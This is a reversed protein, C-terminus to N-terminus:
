DREVPQTRVNVMGAFRHEGIQEITSRANSMSTRGVAVCLLVSDAARALAASFANEDPSALAIIVVSGAAIRATADESFAPIEGRAVETADVVTTGLDGRARWSDALARAVRLCDAASLPPGAPVVALSRLPAVATRGESWLDQWDPSGPRHSAAEDGRAVDSELESHGLMPIGLGRVQWAERLRGQRLESIIAFLVGIVLALILGGRLLKAGKVIEGGFAPPQTVVYVQGHDPASSTALLNRELLRVIDYASEQSWWRVRLLFVNGEAEVGIKNALVAELHRELEEHSMPGNARARIWEKIGGADLRRTPWKEVLRADRVLSRMKEPTFIAKELASARAAVDASALPGQSGSAPNIPRVTFECTAEFLRPLLRKTGALLLFTATATLLGIWVHRRAARAIFWTLEGRTPRVWDDDDNLAENSSLRELLQFEL